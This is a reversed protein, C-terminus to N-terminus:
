KVQVKARLMKTLSNMERTQVRTKHDYGLLHLLGHALLHHVVDVLEEGRAVAQREAAPLSIVVDGLLDPTGAVSEGESMSFSLVDTPRDIQRYRHNLQRIITDDCLMVSLEKEVIGLARLM